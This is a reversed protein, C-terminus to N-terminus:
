RRVGLRMRRMQQPPTPKLLLGTTTEWFLPVGVYVGLISYDKNNPDWFLFGENHSVVM